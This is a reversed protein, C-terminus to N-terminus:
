LVTLVVLVTIVAFTGLTKLFFSVAENGKKEILLTVPRYFFLFAMVSVSLVLLSLLAIPAFFTDPTNHHVTSMYRFFLGVGWIYASAGIANLYPNWRM